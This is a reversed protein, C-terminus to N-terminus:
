VLGFVCWYTLVFLVLVFLVLNYVILLLGISLHM